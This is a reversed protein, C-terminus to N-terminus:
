NRGSVRGHQRGLASQRDSIEHRGPQSGPGIPLREAQPSSRWPNAFGPLTEDNLAIPPPWLVTNTAPPFIRIRDPAPM